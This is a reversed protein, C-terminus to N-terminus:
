RKFEDYEKFQATFPNLVLSYSLPKGEPNDKDNFNITVQQTMGDPIIYFWSSTTKGGTFRVLEDVKEIYFNKIEIAKSIKFTTDAIMGKVPEFNPKKADPNTSVDKELTMEKQKFDFVVRHVKGTIVAQQWGLQMLSNLRTVFQKREYGPPKFQLYPAVAAAMIGIIAIAILLEILTFGPRHM